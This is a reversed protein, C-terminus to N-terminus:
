MAVNLLKSIQQMGEIVIIMRRSISNTKGLYDLMASHVHMSQGANHRGHRRAQGLCPLSRSAPWRAKIVFLLIDSHMRVRTLAPNVLFCFTM